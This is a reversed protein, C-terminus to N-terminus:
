KSVKGIFISIKEKFLNYLHILVIMLNTIVIPSSSILLGYVIWLVAASGNIIRLKVINKQTFSFLTGFTAIYGLFEIM